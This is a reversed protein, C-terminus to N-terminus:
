NTRRDVSKGTRKVSQQTVCNYVSTVGDWQSVEGNIDVTKKDPLRVEDHKGKYRRINDCLQLYFADEYGGKMPEIDRSFEETACDVFWPKGDGLDLKIAIWENWGTVFVNDVKDKNALM